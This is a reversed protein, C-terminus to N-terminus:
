RGTRGRLWRSLLWWVSAVLTSYVVVDLLAFAAGGTLPPRTSGALAYLGAMLLMALFGALVFTVFFRLM